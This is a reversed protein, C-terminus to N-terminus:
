QAGGIFMGVRTGSQEEYIGLAVNYGSFHKLRRGIVNGAMRFARLTPDTLSEDIALTSNSPRYLIGYGDPDLKGQVKLGLVVWNRFDNDAAPAFRVDVGFDAAPLGNITHVTVPIDVTGTARDCPLDWAHAGYGSGDACIAGAPIYVWNQGGLSYVKSVETNVRITTSSESSKGSGGRAFSPAALDPSAAAPASPLDGNCAALAAFAAASLVKLANSIRM